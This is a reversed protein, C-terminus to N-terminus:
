LKWKKYIKSWKSGENISTEYEEITGDSIFECKGMDVQNTDVINSIGRTFIDKIIGM